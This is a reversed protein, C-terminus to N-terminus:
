SYYNDFDKLACELTQYNNEIELSLWVKSSFCDMKFHAVRGKESGKDYYVCPYDSLSVTEGILMKNWFGAALLIKIKSGNSLTKNLDKLKGSPLGMLLYEVFCQKQSHSDDQSGGGFATQELRQPTSIPLGDLKAPDVNVDWSGMKKDWGACLRNRNTQRFYIHSESELIESDKLLIGYKYDIERKWLDVGSVKDSPCEPPTEPFKMQKTIQAYKIVAHLSDDDEDSRLEDLRGPTYGLDALLDSAEKMAQLAKKDSQNKM